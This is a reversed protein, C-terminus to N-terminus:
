RQLSRVEAFYEAVALQRLKHPHNEKQAEAQQLIVTVAFPNLIASYLSLINNVCPYSRM